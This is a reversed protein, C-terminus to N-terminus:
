QQERLSLMWKKQAQVLSHWEIRMKEGSALSKYTYTAESLDPTSIRKLLDGRPSIVIESIKNAIFTKALYSNTMAQEYLDKDGSYFIVVPQDISFNIYNLIIREVRGDSGLGLKKNGMEFLVEGMLNAIEITDPSNKWFSKLNLNIKDILTNLESDSESTQKIKLGGSEETILSQWDRIKKLNLLEHKNASNIAQLLAGYHGKEKSNTSKPYKVEKKIGALNDSEHLFDQLLKSGQLSTSFEIPNM